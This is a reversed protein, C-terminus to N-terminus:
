FYIYILNAGSITMESYHGALDFNMQSVTITGDGNVAEVWMAHGYYGSMSIAVSRARPTSGTAIGEAQASSPWENANGRGGWYPMYGNKQYVKWATYSVCERNYMGWPDVLSDQPANYLDAPYGGKNPDGAIVNAGGSLRANAARQQARLSDVESNKGAILGQYAAEEGRTQALLDAQEAKKSDLQANRAVQDALVREVDTKQHDLEARLTKVRKISLKIQDRVASRYEQQDLYDGLTNSSALVEIPSVQSDLYLSSLTSTLVTQQQQLKLENVVIDAKLQDLRTQNLRIEAQIADQQAQLAAVANQLSAAQGSLEAARAQYSSIESQIATIQDDFRDAFAQLPAVLSVVVAAAVLFLRGQRRYWHQFFPRNTKQKM